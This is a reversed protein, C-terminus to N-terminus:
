WTTSSSGCSAATGNFDKTGDSMLRIVCGSLGSSANATALVTYTSATITSITYTFDNAQAPSWSGVATITAATTATAATISTNYALNRQYFNELAISLSALDSQATKVKTKTVYSRYSPLAIATLIAVLAVAIIIEILTFGRERGLSRITDM